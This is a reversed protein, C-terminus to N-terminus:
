PHFGRQATIRGDTHDIQSVCLNSTESDSQKEPDLLVAACGGAGLPMPDGPDLGLPMFAGPPLAMFDGLVLPSLAGPLPSFAGPALLVLDGPRLRAPLPPGPFAPAGSLPVLAGPALPILAGPGLPMLAGASLRPRCGRVLDAPRPRRLALENVLYLYLTM